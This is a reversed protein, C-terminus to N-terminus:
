LKVLSGTARATFADWAAVVRALFGAFRLALRALVRPGREIPRLLLTYVLSRRVEPALAEALSEDRGFRGLTGERYGWVLHPLFAISTRAVMARSMSRTQETEALAENTVRQFHRGFVTLVRYSGTNGATALVAPTRVHVFREGRAMAAFVWGLQVLNTGAFRRLAGAPALARRVVMGSIFTTWVHVLRAFTLRDMQVADLAQVPNCPDNDTLVPSWRSNMYVLDPANRTLLHVLAHVLGARPLDDDGIIWFYASQVQEVCRCFNEDAGLNSPHRLVQTDQWSRAFEATLTPTEDSSCNDGIIVSVRSELGALETALTALLRALHAARNYTPVIITLRQASMLTLGDPRPRAHLCSSVTSRDGHSPAIDVARDGSINPGNM